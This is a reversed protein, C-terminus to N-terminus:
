KLLLMKRLQSYDTMKMRYFYLGSSVPKGNSDKGNWIVSHYGVERFENVLTRVKQGRINYIELSINGPEKLSYEITTEPNFPNPYNNRLETVTPILHEAGLINLVEIVVTDPESNIRLNNYIGDDVVLVIYFFTDEDVEPAIFEPNVITSDNLTIEEAPAAWLYTIPDLDPDYSGSGDLQVIDGENVSQDEGADAIPPLNSNYVTIVVTDPESSVRLYSSIGDDVELIFEYDVPVNTPVEPAEFTPNVLTSDSLIIGSPATWLYTLPDSDPDSSGSGDLQVIDFEFATTDAGADAIPPQNINLVTVVVTDPDSVERRTIGDDVVLTFEYDVPVNTPVLPATFTPYVATPDSLTIGTPSSWLYTLPDNDPDSSASGDL